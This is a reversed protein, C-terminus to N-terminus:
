ASATFDEANFFNYHEIAELIGLAYPKSAFYIDDREDLEEVLIRDLAIGGSQAFYRLAEGKSARAPVVDLFQGFSHIVNVTLENQRLTANIEDVNPARSPDYYYSIKFDSQNDRPQLELGDLEALVRRVTRPKWMFDIHEAWHEDEILDQGYHM